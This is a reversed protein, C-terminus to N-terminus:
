AVYWDSSNLHVPNHCDLAVVCLVDSLPQLICDKCASPWDDAAVHGDRALSVAGHLMDVVQMLGQAARVAAAAAAAAACCQM